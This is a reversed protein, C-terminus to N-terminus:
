RIKDQINLQSITFNVTKKVNVIKKIGEWTKKLNSSHEEFYSKQHQTKSKEIERNVKNRVRNYADKVTQNLPQRKKRAFLRDRIGILKRIESTIWPNLRSKIEKPNLRKIPAAKSTKEDLGSILDVAIVNADEFNETWIEM